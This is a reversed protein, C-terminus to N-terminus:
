GLNSWKDIRTGQYYYTLIQEFSYGAAAMADAGYQSMGVRHGKGMTDIVLRDGEVRIAFATSYLGLRSRLEVGTYSIGGIVMTAIGGGSTYTKRGLWQEPSGQLNRGLAAAFEAPTFSVTHHYIDAQEEGPSDVSQLYPIDMGWVAVADETRGGSCSFYAAEILKGEYTLVQGATAEVAAAIKELDAQSGREKLYVDETIYAQCCGPDACVAADLHKDGMELRRLAFTRAAVAQAKLAEEEFSAPMEALVVGLVYDELEMMRVTNTGTLVALHKRPTQPMFAQTQSPATSGPASGLRDGWRFIAQPILSGMLLALLIQIMIMRM